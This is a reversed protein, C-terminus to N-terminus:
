YCLVFRIIENIKINKNNFCFATKDCITYTKVLTLQVIFPEKFENM